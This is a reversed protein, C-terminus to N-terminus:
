KLNDYPTPKPYAKKVNEKAKAEKKYAEEITNTEQIINQKEYQKVLRMVKNKLLDREFRNKPLFSNYAKNIENLEEQEEQTIIGDEMALAFTYKYVQVLFLGIDEMRLNYREDHKELYSVEELGWEGSDIRNIIEALFVEKTNKDM